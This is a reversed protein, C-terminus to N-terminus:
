NPCLLQLNNLIKYIFLCSNFIIKQRVSLWCLTDLMTELKTYRNVGLIVRM